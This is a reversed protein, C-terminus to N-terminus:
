GASDRITRWYWRNFRLTNKMERYSAPDKDANEKAIVFETVFNDYADMLQGSTPINAEAEALDKPLKYM